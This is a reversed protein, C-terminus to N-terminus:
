AARRSDRITARGHARRDLEEHWARLVEVTSWNRARCLERQLWASYDREASHLLRVAALERVLSVALRCAEDCTV